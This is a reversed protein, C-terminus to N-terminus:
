LDSQDLERARKEIADALRLCADRKRPDKTQAAMRRMQTIRGQIEILANLQDNDM